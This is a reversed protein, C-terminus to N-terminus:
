MKEDTLLINAESLSRNMQRTDQPKPSNIKLQKPCSDKSINNYCIPWLYTILHVLIFTINYTRGQLNKASHVRSLSVAILKINTENVKCKTSIL